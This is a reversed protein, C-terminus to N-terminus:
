RLGARRAARDIAAVVSGPAVHHPMHGVGELVTLNAGEIQGALPAAHIQPLVFPDKQGHVIEVPVDIQPYHQSM